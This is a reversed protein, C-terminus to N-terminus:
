VSLFWPLLGTIDNKYFHNKDLTMEELSKRNVELRILVLKVEAPQIFSGLLLVIKKEESSFFLMLIPSEPLLILMFILKNWFNILLNVMKLFYLESTRNPKKLMLFTLGHLELVNPFDREQPSYQLPRLHNSGFQCSYNLKGKHKQKYQRLREWIIYKM